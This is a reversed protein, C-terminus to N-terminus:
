RRITSFFGSSAPNSPHFPYYPLQPFDRLFSAWSIGFWAGNFFGGMGENTSADTAFFRATTVRLHSQLHPTPQKHLQVKLGNNALLLDSCFKLDLHAARSIFIRSRPHHRASSGFNLCIFPQRLYLTLSSVVQAAFVLRGCIFQLLEHNVLAWVFRDSHANWVWPM